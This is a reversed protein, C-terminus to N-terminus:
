VVKKKKKLPQMFSEFPFASFNNLSGFTQVDDALHLMIHINHSMFTNGYIEAFQSVFCILIKKAFLIYEEPINDTSMIRIAVCLVIFHNYVKKELINHFVVMGTYLLCQRLETAKWRSADQLPHKRSNEKPGRQFDQPIYLGLENLKLDIASILFKPLNQSHPKIGGTWFMLLKKTVGILICHMYDFPIGSVLDPIDSLITKNCHFNLDSYSIFSERTRLTSCLDPFFVRNNGYRGVTYCRNCSHKGTHGKVNLAFSKAPTDCILAKLQVKININNYVIGTKYFFSLDNVLDLLFEKSNQPKLQGYYVGIIFVDRSKGLNSFYGLCPWLQSPPNKSLPLGDIGVVLMLSSPLSGNDYVKFLQEIENKLGFHHYIGGSIEKVLTTTPTRLLTRSDKPLGKFQPFLSISKLLDDLALHTINHRISWRAIVLELGVDSSSEVVKSVFEYEDSSTNETFSDYNDTNLINDENSPLPNISCNHMEVNPNPTPNSLPPINLPLSLIPLTQNANYNDNNSSSSSTFLSSAEVAARKRSRYRTAKSLHINPWNDDM